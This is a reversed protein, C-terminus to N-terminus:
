LPVWRAESEAAQPHSTASKAHLSPYVDTPAQGLLLGAVLVLLLYFGRRSHRIINVVKKM